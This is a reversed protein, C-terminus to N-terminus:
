AGWQVTETIGVPVRGGNEQIIRLMRTAEERWRTDIKPSLLNKQLRLPLDSHWKFHHCVPDPGTQDRCAVIATGFVAHHGDAIRNYGRALMVKNVGCGLVDRSFHSTIPFQQFLNPSPTIPKLVGNEAHHDLFFGGIVGCDDTDCRRLIHYLPLEITWFEDLDYVGYWDTENMGEIVLMRIVDRAEEKTGRCLDESVFKVTIDPGYDPPRETNKNSWRMIIRYEHERFLVRYHDLWHRILETGGAADITLVAYIM